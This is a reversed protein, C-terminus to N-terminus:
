SPLACAGPHLRLECCAGPELVITYLRRRDTDISVQYTGPPLEFDLPPRAERLELVKRGRLDSIGIAATVPRAAFGPLGCRLHLRRLLAYVRVATRPTEVAARISLRAATAPESLSVM